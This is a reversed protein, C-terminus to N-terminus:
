EEIFHGGFRDDPEKYDFYNYFSVTLNFYNHSKFKYIENCLGLIIKIGEDRQRLLIGRYKVLESTSMKRLDDVNRVYGPLVGIDVMTGDDEVLVMFSDIIEQRVRHEADISMLRLAIYKGMGVLGNKVDFNSLSSTQTESNM